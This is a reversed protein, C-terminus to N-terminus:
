HIQIGRRRHMGGELYPNSLAFVIPRENLEAMDQLVESSFMGGVAAVGIIATPKLTRIATLIADEDPSMTVLWNTANFPDVM